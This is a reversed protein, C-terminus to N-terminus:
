YSTEDVLFIITVHKFLKDSNLTIYRQSQKFLSLREKETVDVMVGHVLDFLM